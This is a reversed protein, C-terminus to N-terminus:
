GDGFVRFLVFYLLVMVGLIVVLGFVARAVDAGGIAIAVVVMLLFM